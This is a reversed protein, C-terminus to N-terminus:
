KKAVEITAHQHLLHKGVWEAMVAEPVKGLTVSVDKKHGGRAVTYTVSAGPKWDTKAKKAKEKYKEGFAIGNMALLVDGKKLGAKEAPSGPVVETLTLKTGDDNKDYEIGVWGKNKIKAAMKNLCDQTSATCDHKEGAAAPLVLALALVLIWAVKRM